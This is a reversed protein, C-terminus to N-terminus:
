DGIVEIRELYDAFEAIHRKLEDANKQQAAQELAGGIDTIGQFGYGGGDGKMRHGITRISQFDAQELADTLTRLDRRRNNLFGPVLDAIEPDVRILIKDSSRADSKHSV